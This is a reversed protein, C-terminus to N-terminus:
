QGQWDFNSEAPVIQNVVAEKIGSMDFECCDGIDDAIQKLKYVDAPEELKLDICMRVDTTTKPKDSEM